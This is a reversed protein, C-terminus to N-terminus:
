RLPVFRYRGQATVSTGDVTRRVALMRGDVPIVMVGGLRLQGVLDDPLSRAMASVLIRDFPAEDPLGLHGPDAQQILPDMGIASLNANGFEVLRPELEVGRVRGGPGALTALLATTWGSGAGVDLVSQGPQVQLLQLMTRVTSPQSNTAGHGIALPSDTDSRARDGALLFAARDVRAMAQAVEREAM